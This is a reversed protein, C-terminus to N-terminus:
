RVNDKGRVARSQASGPAAAAMRVNPKKQSLRGETLTTPVAIARTAQAVARPAARAAAVLTEEMRPAAETAPPLGTTLLAITMLVTTPLVM